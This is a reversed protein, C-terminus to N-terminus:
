YLYRGRLDPPPENHRMNLEAQGYWRELEELKQEPMLRYWGLDHRLQLANTIREFRAAQDPAERQLFRRGNEVFRIAGKRDGLELFFALRDAMSGIMEYNMEYNRPLFAMQPNERAFREFVRRGRGEAGTLFLTTVLFTIGIVVLAGDLLRQRSFRIVLYTLGLVLVLCVPLLLVAYSHKPLFLLMAAKVAFEGLHTRVLAVVRSLENAMLYGTRGDPLSWRTGYAAFMLVAWFICTLCLASVATVYKKTTDLLRALFLFFVPYLFLFRRQGFSDGYDGSWFVTSGCIVTGLVMVIFLLHYLPPNRRWGSCYGALALALIPWFVFLGNRPGILMLPSKLLMAVDLQPGYTSGQSGFLISRVLLGPLLFLLAGFALVALSRLWRRSPVIKRQEAVAYLLLVGWVAFENRIFTGLGWVVGMLLWTRTLSRDAFHVVYLLLSALFAAPLNTQCPFVAVYVLLPGGFLLAVSAAAVATTGHFTRGVQYLLWLTLLALLYATFGCWVAEHCALSNVSAPLGPVLGALHLSARALAAAPLIFLVGGINQHIPAHTTKTIQLSNGDPVTEPLINLSGTDIIGHAVALYVASDPGNAANPHYLLFALLSLCILVKKHLM